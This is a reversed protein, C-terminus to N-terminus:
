DKLFVYNAELNM